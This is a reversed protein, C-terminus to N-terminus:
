LASGSINGGGNGERGGEKDGGWMFPYATPNRNQNWVQTNAVAQNLAKLDIKCHASDGYEEVLYVPHAVGCSKLRFQLSTNM